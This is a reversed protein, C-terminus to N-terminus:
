KHNTYQYMGIHPCDILEKCRVTKTQWQQLCANGQCVRAATQTGLRGDECTVSCQGILNWPSWNSASCM